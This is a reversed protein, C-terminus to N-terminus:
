LLVHLTNADLDSQSLANKETHMCHTYTIYVASLISFIIIVYM